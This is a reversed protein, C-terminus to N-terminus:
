LPVRVAPASPVCVSPWHWTRDLFRSHPPCGGTGAPGCLAPAIRSCCAPDHDAANQTCGPRWARSLMLSGVSLLVAAHQRAKIFSQAHALWILGTFLQPVSMHGLNCLTCYKRRASFSLLRQKLAQVSMPCSYRSSFFGAAAIPLGGEEHGPCQQTCLRGSSPCSTCRTSCVAVHLPM